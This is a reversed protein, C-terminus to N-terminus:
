ARNLLDEANKDREDPTTNNAYKEAAKDATKESAKKRMLNQYFNTLSNFLLLLIEKSFYRLITRGISAFM